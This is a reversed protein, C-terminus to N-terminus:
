LHEGRGNGDPNQPLPMWHTVKVQIAEEASGYDYDMFHWKNNRYEAIHPVGYDGSGDIGFRAQVLVWDFIPKPPLFDEVSIWDYPQELFQSWAKDDIYRTAFIKRSDSGKSWELTEPLNENVADFELDREKCWAVADELLKGCRCTWLILKCGSLKAGQLYMIMIENAEGIEPWKNECLTGDFDVAIIKQKM